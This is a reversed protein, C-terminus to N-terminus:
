MKVRETTIMTCRFILVSMDAVKSVDLRVVVPDRLEHELVLQNRKVPRQANNAARDHNM